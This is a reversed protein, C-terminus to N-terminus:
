CSCSCAAPSLEVWISLKPSENEFRPMYDRGRFDFYSGKHTPGGLLVRGVPSTVSSWSPCMTKPACAQKVKQPGQRADTAGRPVGGPAGDESALQM